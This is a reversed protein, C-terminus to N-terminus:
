TRPILQEAERIAAARNGLSNCVDRIHETLTIARSANAEEARLRAVHLGLTRLQEALRDRRGRVEERRADIQQFLALQQRLLARMHEKAALEGVVTAGLAELSEQIRRHEAPNADRMLQALEEENAAIAEELQRAAEIAQRYVDGHPSAKGIQAIRTIEMVVGEHPVGANPRSESLVGAIDPREWFRSGFTPEDMLRNMDTRTLRHERALRSVRRVGWFTPILAGGIVILPVYLGAWRYITPHTMMYSPRMAFIFFNLVLPSAAVMLGGINRMSRVLGPLRDYVDGPRRLPKPWWAKWWSPQRFYSRVTVRWGWRRLPLIWGFLGAAQIVLWTILMGRVTFPRDFVGFLRSLIELEVAASAAVALRVGMGGIGRLEDPMAEDSDTSLSQRIQAATQWREDPNKALARMVVRDLELPIAVDTKSPAIPMAVAHQSLVEQLSGGQFPLHGTLMRYAIVGLAYIDSRGDIDSTGAAQEPSMYYPTGVIMGTRTLTATDARQKAIGFDTLLARGTHRDLLVNDPKVDRHVVGMQHAYHLADSLEDIIRRAEDPQLKGVRRLRAELPEGDVYGMVYFLLDGSQGFTHLPVIHPHSLRAATRAERLFRERAEGSALDAPLVKVAVERDLFPERALYVAGMGGRGLLRVVEYQSGLAAALERAQTDNAIM